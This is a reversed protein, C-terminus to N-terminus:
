KITSLITDLLDACHACLERQACNGLIKLTAELKAAHARLHKLEEEKEWTWM